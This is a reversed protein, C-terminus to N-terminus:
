RLYIYGWRRHVSTEKGSVDRCSLCESRVVKEQFQHAGVDSARNKRLCVARAGLM